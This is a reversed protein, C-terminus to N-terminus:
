KAAQLAVIDRSLNRPKTARIEEDKSEGLLARVGIKNWVHHRLLTPREEHQVRSRDSWWGLVSVRNPLLSLLYISCLITKNGHIHVTCKPTWYNPMAISYIM